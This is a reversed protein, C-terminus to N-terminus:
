LVEVSAATGRYGLLVYKFPGWGARLAVLLRDRPTRAFLTRSRFADYFEANPSRVRWYWPKEVTVFHVIFPRQDPRLDSIRQNFKGTIGHPQFNWRPDLKTWLRDCAVNLADQDSYPSQPHRALYDLAKETIREERWRALDILLVGANFYDRVQPVGEFGPAGANIAPVIFEDSVAGVVAGDLDTEWLPGLADLLLLDADLYLVRSVTAPFVRPILLRTYTVKSVHRLTSFDRFLDLGVPVWRISASGEPLSNVLRGRTRESFDDSLVHFELPWSSANAEVISRLTTALPMAYAEDCAFVLPCRPRPADEKRICSENLESLSNSPYIPM